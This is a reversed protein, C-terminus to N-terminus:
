NGEKHTFFTMELKRCNEKAMSLLPPTVMAIGLSPSQGINQSHGECPIVESM